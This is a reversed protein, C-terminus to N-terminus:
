VAGEPLVGDIVNGNTRLRRLRWSRFVVLGGGSAFPPARVMEEKDQPVWAANSHRLGLEDSEASYGIDGNRLTFRQEPYNAIAADM